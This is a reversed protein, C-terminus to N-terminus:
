LRMSYDIIFSKQYEERRRPAGPVRELAGPVRRPAEETRQTTKKRVRHVEFGKNFEDLLTDYMKKRKQHKENYAELQEKYDESLFKPKQVHDTRHNTVHEYVHGNIDYRNILNNGLAAMANTKGPGFPSYSPTDAQLFRRLTPDLYRFNYLYSGDIKSERM